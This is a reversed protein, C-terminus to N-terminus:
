FLIRLKPEYGAVTFYNACPRCNMTMVCCLLPPLTASFDDWCCTHQPDDAQLTSRRIAGEIKSTLISPILFLSLRAFSRAPPDAPGFYRRVRRFVVVYCIDTLSPHRFNSCVESNCGTRRASM